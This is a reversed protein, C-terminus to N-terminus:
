PAVKPALRDIIAVLLDNGGTRYEEVIEREEATLADVPSDPAVRALSRAIDYWSCGVWEGALASDVEAIQEDDPAAVEIENIRDAEAAIRLKEERTLERM